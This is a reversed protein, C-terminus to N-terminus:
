VDRAWRAQNLRRRAADTLWQRARVTRTSAAASSSLRASPGGAHLGDAIGLLSESDVLKARHRVSCWPLLDRHRSWETSPPVVKHRGARGTPPEGWHPTPSPASVVSSAPAAIACSHRIIVIPRPPDPLRGLNQRAGSCGRLHRFDAPALHGSMSPSDTKRPFGAATIRM